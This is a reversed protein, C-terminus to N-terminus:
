SAPDLLTGAGVRRGAGQDSEGEAQMVTQLERKLAANFVTRAITKESRSWSPENPYPYTGQTARPTM